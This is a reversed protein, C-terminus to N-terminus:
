GYIQERITPWAVGASLEALTWQCWALNHLIRSREAETAIRPQEISEVELSSIPKSIADGLVIAPVGNCLADFAANSGHTVIAHADVLVGGMGESPESFRTGEIPEAERWTPKPRYVLERKTAKRLKRVIRKWFETPHPLAHFAHYKESSGALVVHAGRERWAKLEIGLQDWRDSPKEWRALFRTPQHANVAVRWFEWTHQGEARHRCYGKDFYVIALGAEQHARFLKASKVGVMCAVDFKDDVDLEPQLAKLMIEDRDGCAEVGEKFAQALLRERPKDSHWFVIRM